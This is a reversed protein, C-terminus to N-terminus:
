LAKGPLIRLGLGTLVILVAEIVMPPVQAPSPGNLVLNLVRGTLAIGLMLVVPTLWRAEKRIVAALMLVGSAGFFGAMDARLTGLGAPGGATLDMTAAIKAPDIWFRSAILLALLGTLGLLGRMITIGMTKGRSPDQRQRRVERWVLYGALGTVLGLGLILPLAFTEAIRLGINLAIERDATYGAPVEAVGVRAAYARYDALMAAAEAPREASLDRTEGPDRVIDYLRWAPDGM